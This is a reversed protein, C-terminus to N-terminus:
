VSMTQNGHSDNRIFEFSYIKANIQTKITEVFMDFEDDRANPNRQNNWRFYFEVIVTMCLDVAGSEVLVITAAHELYNM